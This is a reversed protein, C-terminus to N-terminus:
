ENDLLMQVGKRRSFKAFFQRVKEQVWQYETDTFFLFYTAIMVWSFDEIRLTFYIGVHFTIGALVALVRTRKFWILFPFSYEFVLTFLSLFRLLIDHELLWQNFGLMASFDTGISYYIAAGGNTWVQQTIKGTATFFYIICMQIMIASLFLNKYPKTPFLKDFVHYLCTFTIVLFIIDNSADQFLTNIDLLYYYVPFILILLLKFRTFNYILFAIILSIIIISPGNELTIIPYLFNNIPMGSINNTGFLTDAIPLYYMLDSIVTLSIIFFCIQHGISRDQLLKKM